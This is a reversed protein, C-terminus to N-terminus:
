GRSNEIKIKENDKGLFGHYCSLIRISNRFGICVFWRRKGDGFIRLSGTWKCRVRKALFGVMGVLWFRKAAEILFHPILLIQSSGLSVVSILCAVERKATRLSILSPSMMLFGTEMWELSRTLLLIKNTKKPPDSSSWRTQQPRASKPNTEEPSLPLKNHMPVFFLNKDLLFLLTATM